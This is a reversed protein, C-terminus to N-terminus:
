PRAARPGATGKARAREWRALARGAVRRWLPPVFGITAMAPLPLPLRPAEAPEPLTLAPFPRSPHLHHDSHRPANLLMLSSLWHSGNWSHAATVPEPRGDPGIARSLGYHQVYDSMLIQAQAIAALAILAILGPLGWLAWAAVAVGGGGGVYAAYPHLGRHAGSLRARQANEAALGARFGGAWARPAFRYFGEGPRPWVPDRATAVWVHHVKLHSSAHHGFLLSVYVGRGLMPLLRGPRHILEHANAHGVQGFWLGGALALAGAQSAGPAQALAGVVGALLPFHCLSILASVLEAPRRAAAEPLAPTLRSVLRDGLPVVLWFYGLAVWAWGGGWLAAAALAPAPALAAVAFLWITAPWIIAPM